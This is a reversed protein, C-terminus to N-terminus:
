AATVTDTTRYAARARDIIRWRAQPSVELFDMVDSEVLARFGDEDELSLYLDLKHALYALAASRPFSENSAYDHHAAAVSTLEEPLMWAKAVAAGAREHYHRFLRGVLAPTVDASSTVARRLITLLAIKGIDQLLGIMFAKEPDM